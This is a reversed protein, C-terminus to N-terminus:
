LMTLVDTGRDTIAITHAFCCSLQGDRTATTWGDDMVYTQPGGQNVLPKVVLVMGSELKRGTGSEGYNPVAPEEHLARGIGHGFQTRVVSFGQREVHSQIAASADGLRNPAQMRKIAEWLSEETVRLLKRAPEAVEGVAVTIAGDGAFGGYFLGLNITVIDGSKLIVRSSPVANMVEENVSTCIAAPYAPDDEYPQYDKYASTAGRKQIERIAVEELFGTSVGPKAVGALELLIEGVFRAPYRMQEIEDRSKLHIM